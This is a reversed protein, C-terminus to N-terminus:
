RSTISITARGCARATRTQGWGTIRGYVLRPNQQLCEAPGFGLREMVGPRYGEILVDCAAVLRLATALGEPHKLNLRLSRRNRLLPDRSPEHWLAGPREIRIVEAGMDGLMMGCFPAPGLGALELVRVGALPGGRSAPAM